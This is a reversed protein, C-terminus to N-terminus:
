KCQVRVAQNLAELAKKVQEDTMDKIANTLQTSGVPVSSIAPLNACKKWEILYADVYSSLTSYEKRNRASIADRLAKIIPCTCEPTDKATLLGGIISGLKSNGTVEDLLNLGTDKLLNKFADDGAENSKIKKIQDKINDDDKKQKNRQRKREDAAAKAKAIEDAEAAAKKNKREQDAIQKKRREEEITSIDNELDSIDNEIDDMDDQATKAADGLEEELNKKKNVLADFNNWFDELDKPTKPCEKLLAEIDDKFDCHNANKECWRKLRQLIRKVQECQEELELEAAAKNDAKAKADKAQQLAEALKACEDKADSLNDLTQKHTKLARRHKAITKGIATTFESIYDRTSEDAEKPINYDLSITGDDNKTISALCSNDLCYDDLVENLDKLYANIDKELADLEDELQNIVDELEAIRDKCAELRVLADSITKDLVDDSSSVLAQKTANALNDIAKKLKDKYAEPVRDLVKDIAVLDNYLGSLSDKLHKTRDWKEWKDQIDGELDEIEGAYSMLNEFTFNFNEIADGYTLNRSDSNFPIDNESTSCEGGLDTCAEPSILYSYDDIWCNCLSSGDTNDNELEDPSIQASISYSGSIKATISETITYSNNETTINIHQNNGNQLEINEPSTNTLTLPVDEILGELGSVTITLTTTESRLLNLKEISLNLQLVNVIDQITTNAETFTLNEQGSLNNPVELFVHHESEALINAKTSGLTITTNTSNGDLFFSSITAPSGAVMYSPICTSTCTNITENLNITAMQESHDILGLDILEACSPITFQQNQVNFSANGIHLKLKQLEKLNKEQKRKSDGNPLTKITGSIAQSGSINPLYIQITGYGTSFTATTLGNHTKVQVNSQSFSTWATTFLLIIIVLTKHTTKMISFNFM